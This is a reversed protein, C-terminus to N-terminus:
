AFYLLVMIKTCEEIIKEYENRKKNVNKVCFITIKYKTLKISDCILNIQSNNITPDYNTLKEEGSIEDGFYFFNKISSFHFYLFKM